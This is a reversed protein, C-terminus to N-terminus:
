SSDLPAQTRTNSPAPRESPPRRVSQARVEPDLNPRRRRKSCSKIRRTKPDLLRARGRPHCPRVRRRAGPSRHPAAARAAKRHLRRGDGFAAQAEGSAATLRGCSRGRTRRDAHRQRRRRRDSQHAGSLRSRPCFKSAQEESEIIGSGPIVPVGAEAMRQKASSKDGMLAIAAPPPGIFKFGHSACIEAFQANESLFGYGPISRM